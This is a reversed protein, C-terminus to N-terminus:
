CDMPDAEGTFELQIASRETVTEEDGCGVLSLAMLISSITMSGNM